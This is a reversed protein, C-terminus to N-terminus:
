FSSFKFFEKSISFIDQSEGGRIVLHENEEPSLVSSEVRSVGYKGWPSRIGTTEM